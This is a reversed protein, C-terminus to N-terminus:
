RRVVLGALARRIRRTLPEGDGDGPEPKEARAVAPWRSAASATVLLVLSALFVFALFAVVAGLSGYIANYRGFNEVYFAFGHTLGWLALSGGLAGRWVGEWAMPRAPVLRLLASLVVFALVIPTGLGIFVGLPGSLGLPELVREDAVRTLLTIGASLLLLAGTLLVMALDVLKGRLFPRGDEARTVATLGARIAGMMGSATWLLGVLSVVGVAGAGGGAGALVDSLDAAGEDSLPLAEVIPNVVESRAREESVVTAAGAVLTIVLPFLSLLAYYAIAAALRTGGSEVFGEVTRRTLLWLRWPAM